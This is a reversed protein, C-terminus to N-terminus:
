VAQPPRPAVAAPAIQPALPPVPMQIWTFAARIHPPVIFGEPRASLRQALEQALAGKSINTAGANREFMGQYLVRAANTNDQEALVAARLRVAIQPHLESLADLILARNVPGQLGLDYELTKPSIFVKRFAEDMQQISNAGASIDAAQNLNPFPILTPDGDTLTAVKVPMASRGFLPLFCDFNLGEASVISLGLHRLNINLYDAMAPVLAREAAGEVLIVSRAFFLDARTVDLYRKLKKQRRDDLVANKIPFASLKGYHQSMRIINELEAFAAFHPSHTTVFIQVQQGGAAAEQQLYALLISQLQPHLHAEPEEVILCRYVVEGSLSLEGLVAAMYILNNYGLGNREIDFGDALIALRSAVKGIDLPSLNLDLQQSLAAGLMENYRQSIADKAATIPQAAGLQEDVLGLIQNCAELGDPTAVRQLLRALLSRMGPKLAKSADRLPPLYISRLQEVMEATMSIAARDGCLRRAKFRGMPDPAEFHVLFEASFTGADQPLVAGMFHAAQEINLNSFVFRFSISLINQNHADELGLRIYADEPATLLTRLADVITTKGINNEGLIINLGHSFDISLFDIKRFNKIELKALYM